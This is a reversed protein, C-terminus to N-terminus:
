LAKEMTLIFVGYDLEIASTCPINDYQKSAFTYSVRVQYLVCLIKGFHLHQVLTQCWSLCWM